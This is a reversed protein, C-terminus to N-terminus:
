APKGGAWRDAPIFLIDLLLLLVGLASFVASPFLRAVLRDTVARAIHPAITVALYHYLSFYGRAAIVMVMINILPWRTIRLLALSATCLFVLSFCAAFFEALPGHLLGEFDATLTGIDRLFAATFRDPAFVGTWALAPTGSIVPQPQGAATITMVGASAAITGAAYVSFRGPTRAPDFLLIGQVSADSIARVSITAGGVKVLTSPALYRRPTEAVTPSAAAPLRLWLMGNVLVIYSVALVILLGLFRSFPRRALRFGILVISLVVSPILTEFIRRPLMRVAYAFSFPTAASDYLGWTSFLNLLALVFTACILIFLFVFPAKLPEKVSIGLRGNRAGSIL